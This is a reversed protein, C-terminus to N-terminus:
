DHGELAIGHPGTLQNGLGNVRRGLVRVHPLSHRYMEKIIMPIYILPNRYNYSFPLVEPAGFSTKLLYGTNLGM